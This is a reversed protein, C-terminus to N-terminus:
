PTGGPPTFVHSRYFRLEEISELIDDLARHRDKKPPAKIGPYWRRVLEKISTVDIIRDELWGSLEPMHRRLFRRDLDVSNGCLPSEGRATHARVLELVTREAAALAVTSAKVNATLGSKGHHEKCWDSMTELVADPHHVIISDGQALVALDTDTIVAAIELVVCTSPDLGSMEMDIWVLPTAGPM